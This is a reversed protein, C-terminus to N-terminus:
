FRGSLKAYLMRGRPDHVAAEYAAASGNVHPPDADFVNYVGVRLALEDGIFNKFTYGYQLDLSLWSSIWDFSGDPHPLVDDEMGSILHTIATASHGAVSFTIPFNVRWRPIPPVFNNANRKGAVHCVDKDSVVDVASSGECDAPPLIKAAAGTAPDAPISRPSAARRPIDYNFTYTGVTGVSLNWSDKPRDGGPLNLTVGFDIGSTVTNGKVNIQRVNVGVIAGNSDRVVRPDANVMDQNVIQQADEVAIRDVYDYRWFDAFVALADIPSWGLGASLTLATEPKLDPNGFRRVPLYTVLAAAGLRLPYPVTQYSPDSQVITPARFATSVNGRLQLTRLLPSVNDPGLLQAPTLTLGAFPSVATSDIDTYHELRAAGQLELGRLFPLRLELYGSYVDRETSADPNGIYFIYRDENADHDYESTRWEHRVEAGFALGADGGPLPFLSGSMGGNYTQLAHDNMITMEGSFSRIVSTSNPTGTGDVASYFPNFCRSLDTPDSCSDLADLLPQRLNDKIAYRYRSIGMMSFLEWEWSEFVTGQAVGEFDGRLGLVARMTDDAFPGRTAGAEAGLPRGLWLVATRQGANPLGDPVVFPNDVHDAPILPSPILPLSPSGINDGRMRSATFEGFVSTHKTLDYEASSFTNVRELNGILYQYDRYDFTCLTSPGSPALMSGPVQGCAPDPQAGALPTGTATAPVYAGPQGQTSIYSGKTWDRQGADLEGRRMYSGSVLLRLREDSVGFAASGTFDSQDFRSTTQGDAEIRFGSFNKRTIINVVGGVADAGYLASAGAKLIEIREVAALPITSLDTVNTDVSAGSPNVRRGNILLLTAGEGLGRLNVMVVGGTPIGGQTLNAQAGTGQSATMNQVVDALNTAGSRELQARDVVEIAASAAFKSRKLRSGIVVMEEGSAVPPEVTIASEPVVDAPAQPEQASAAGATLPGQADAPAGEQAEAPASEQAEDPSSEQAGDVAGDPGTPEAAGADERGENAPRPADPSQARAGTTMALVVWVVGIALLRKVQDGEARM